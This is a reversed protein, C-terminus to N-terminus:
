KNINIQDHVFHEAVNSMSSFLNLLDTECKDLQIDKQM